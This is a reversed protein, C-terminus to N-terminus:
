YIRVIVMGADDGDVVVDYCSSGVRTGSHLLVNENDVLIKYYM